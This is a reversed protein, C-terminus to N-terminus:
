RFGLTLGTSRTPSPPNVDSFGGGDLEAVRGDGSNEEMGKRWQPGSAALRRPSQGSFSVGFYFPRALNRKNRRANKGGESRPNLGLFGLAPDFTIRKKIKMSPPPSDSPSITPFLRNIARFLIEGKEKKECYKRIICLGRTGNLPFPKTKPSNPGRARNLKGGRCSCTTSTVDLCPLKSFKFAIWENAMRGRPLSINLFLFLSLFPFFPPHIHISSKSSGAVYTWCHFTYTNALKM